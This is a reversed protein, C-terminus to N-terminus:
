GACTTRHCAGQLSRGPSLGVRLGRQQRYRREPRCPHNQHDHIVDTPFAGLLHVPRATRRAEPGNCFGLVLSLSDM